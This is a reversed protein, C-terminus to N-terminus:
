AFSALCYCTGNRKGYDETRSIQGVCVPVLGIGSGSCFGCAVAAAILTEKSSGGGVGSPLWLGIVAIFSCISMLIIMNFRGTTDAAWNPLWRGLASGANFVAMLQYSFGEGAGIHIAYSALYTVPIFIVWEILFTASTTLAFIPEGLATFDVTAKTDPLPKLRSRVLLNAPILLAVQVFGVVRSAWPFGIMPIMQKFIISFVVGGVSGGTLVLGIANARRKHFWHGVSAIAPNFM